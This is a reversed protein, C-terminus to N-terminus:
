CLILGIGLCLIICHSCYGIANTDRYLIFVKVCDYTLWKIPGDRDTCIPDWPWKSRIKVDFSASDAGVPNEATVRLTGTDNATTNKVQPLRLNDKLLSKLFSTPYNQFFRLSIEYFFWWWETIAHAGGVAGHPYFRMVACRNNCQADTVVSRERQDELDTQPQLGTQFSEGPSKASVDSVSLTFPGRM